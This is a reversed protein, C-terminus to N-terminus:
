ILHFKTKVYCIMDSLVIRANYDNRLSKKTRKSHSEDRRHDELSGFAGITGQPLAEGWWKRHHERAKSSVTM